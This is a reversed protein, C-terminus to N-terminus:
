DKKYTKSTQGEVSVPVEGVLTVRRMVRHKEGYDNIAYHQTARNDWIAIDGAEWHWRVTNELRTVHDQLISFLHASDSSSLGKIKKVFHGLVLTREGTEPHIRVVPHETEYVTSAFVKRHRELDEQSRNPHRGGYDYDNTHVAWLKDALNRLETPLNQYAIATNAWVTDGGSEPVVVARLISAKPYTDIFTVDTHWSNARGGHESDLEFLYNSGEKIPVTPHAEPEGFLKAFAEQGTDDLHKQGRFFIVKYQLLAKKIANVTTTDLDSSLHIGRIEAGIQGAIPYVELVSNAVKNKEVISM